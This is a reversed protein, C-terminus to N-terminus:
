DDKDNDESPSDIDVGLREDDDDSSPIDSRRAQSMQTDEDQQTDEDHTSLQSSMDETSVGHKLSFCSSIPSIMPTIMPTAMSSASM